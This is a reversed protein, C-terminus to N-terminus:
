KKNNTANDKILLKKAIAQNFLNESSLSIEVLKPRFTSEFNTKSEGLIYNLRSRSDKDYYFPKGETNPDNIVFMLSDKSVILPKSNEGSNENAYDVMVEDLLMNDDLYKLTPTIDYGYTVYVIDSNVKVATAMLESMFEETEVTRYETYYFLPIFHNGILNYYFIRSEKTGFITENFKNIHFLRRGNFSTFGNQVKSSYDYNYYVIISKDFSVKKIVAIFYYKAYDSNDDDWVATFIIEKEGDNDLDHEEYTYDEFSGEIPNLKMEIGTESYRIPFDNLYEALLYFVDEKERTDKALKMEQIWARELPIELDSVYKDGSAWIITCAFILWLAILTIIYKKM